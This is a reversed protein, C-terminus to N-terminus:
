KILVNPSIVDCSLAHVSVQCLTLLQAYAPHRLTLLPSIQNLGRRSKPFVCSSDTLLHPKCGVAKLASDFRDGEEPEFRQNASAGVLIRCSTTSTLAVAYSSKSWRQPGTSCHLGPWPSRADTLKQHVFFTLESRARVEAYVECLIAVLFNLLILVATLMYSWIWIPGLIINAGQM